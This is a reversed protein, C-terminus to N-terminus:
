PKWSKALHSRRIKGDHTALALAHTRATAVILRDAPDGHFSSPLAHLSSVVDADLPLVRITDTASMRHIWPDFPENLVLRGHSVLMEAEWISIAAIFPLERAALDDLAKSERSKIRPSGSLWWLWVHTDLLISL